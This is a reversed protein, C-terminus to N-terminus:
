GTKCESCVGLLELRHSVVTYGRQAAEKVMPAVGCHSISEASECEVCFVYHQHQDSIKLAYYSAGTGFDSAHIIDKESLWTLNRYLTARDFDGSNGGNKLHVAKEIQAASLPRKSELLVEILEQRFHTKKLGAKHLLYVVQQQKSQDNSKLREASKFAAFKKM